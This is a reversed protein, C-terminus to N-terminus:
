DLCAWQLMSCQNRLHQYSSVPFIFQGGGEKLDLRPLPLSLEPRGISTFGQVLNTEVTGILAYLRRMATNDVRIESETRGNPQLVNEREGWLQEIREKWNAVTQPLSEAERDLHMPQILFPALQDIPVVVEQVYDVGDHRYHIERPERSLFSILRSPYDNLESDAPLRIILGRRPHLVVQPIIRNGHPQRLLHALSQRITETPDGQVIVPRYPYYLHLARLHDMVEPALPTAGIRSVNVIDDFGLQHIFAPVVDRDVHMVKDYTVVRTEGHLTHSMNFTEEKPNLMFTRAVRGIFDPSSGAPFRINLGRDTAHVLPILLGADEPKAFRNTFRNLVAFQTEDLRLLSLAITHTPRFLNDLSNYSTHIKYQKFVTCSNLLEDRFSPPFNCRALLQDLPHDLPLFFERTFGDYNIDRSTFGLAAIRNEFRLENRGSRISLGGPMAIFYMQGSSINGDPSRLTKLVAKVLRSLASVPVQPAGVKRELHPAPPRQAPPLAGKIPPIAAM